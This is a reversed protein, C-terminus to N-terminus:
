GGGRIKGGGGRGVGKPMGRGGCGKLRGGLMRKAKGGELPCIGGGGNENGM